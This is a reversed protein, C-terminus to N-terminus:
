NLTTVDFEGLGNNFFQAPVLHVKNNHSTGSPIIETQKGGDIKHIKFTGFKAKITLYGDEIDYYANDDKDGNVDITCEQTGTLELQLEFDGKFFVTDIKGGFVCKSDSFEKFEGSGVKVFFVIQAWITEKSGDKTGNAFYDKLSVM